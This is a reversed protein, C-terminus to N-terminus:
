SEYELRWRVSFGRSSSTRGSQFGKEILKNRLKNKPLPYRLGNDSAWKLYNDYLNDMSILGGGVETKVINEDIWLNVIDSDKRYQESAKLISAPLKDIGDEVYLRYGDICWNLIGSLEAELKAEIDKDIKTVITEWPVLILRRWIGNDTGRVGPKYNSVLILKFIPSFEFYERHLFRASIKDGGSMQKIIGEDLRMGDNGENAIVLRVKDLGALDNRIASKDTECLSDFQLTKQYSGFVKEIIHLMVGKGNGGVGYFLAVKQEKASGLLCYGFLKQLWFRVEAEPQVQELFKDFLPCKANVDYNAMSKKTIYDSSLGETFENGTNKLDLVGNQVGFRFEDADLDSQHVVMNPFTSALAVMSELKAKSQTKIAFNSLSVAKKHASERGFQDRIKSAQVLAVGADSLMNKTVEIAKQVVQRSEDVEWGGCDQNFQLWQGRQPCYALEDKFTKVFEHAAFVESLENFECTNQKGNAHRNPRISVVVNNKNNM